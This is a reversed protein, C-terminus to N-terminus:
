KKPLKGMRNEPITIFLRLSKFGEALRMRGQIGRFSATSAAIDLISLEPMKVNVKAIQSDHRRLLELKDELVGDIDAYVNPSFNVTTPGEYFLFNPIYRTASTAASALFRHDQHTDEIHHVFIYDPETERIVGEIGSVLEAIQPLRCDEYGGWFLRKVGIFEAALEQERKRVGPDGGLEGFTAVYAFVEHGARAFRLLTAGCGFEIDDPHAGLALIRM